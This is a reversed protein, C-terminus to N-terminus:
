SGTRRHALDPRHPQEHAADRQRPHLQAPAADARPRVPREPQRTRSATAPRRGGFSPTTDWAQSPTSPSAIISRHALGFRTARATTTCPRTLAHEEPVGATTLGLVLPDGAPHRVRRVAGHVCPELARGLRDVPHARPAGPGGTRPPRAPRSCSTGGSPSFLNSTRQAACSLAPGRGAPAPGLSGAAPRGAASRRAPDRAPPGRAQAAPRRVPRPDRGAALAIAIAAAGVLSCCATAARPWCRRARPLDRPRAAPPRDGPGRRGATAGAGPRRGRLQRRRDDGGGARRGLRGGLGSDGALYVSWRRRRRGVRAIPLLARLPAYSSFAFAGRGDGSGADDGAGRSLPTAGRTSAAWTSASCGAWPRARRQRRRHHRRHRADGRPHPRGRHAPLRDARGPDRGHLRDRRAADRHQRHGRPVPRRRAGAGLRHRGRDSTALLGGAVQQYFTPLRRVSMARQLLDIGVAACSRSRTIVGTAASCCVRRRRGDRRLGLTVAWRPLRHGSSVIRALRSRAEDRDIAGGLLDRVLHDVLTLDEYDIERHRVQRIQIM